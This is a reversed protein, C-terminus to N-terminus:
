EKGYSKILIKLIKQATKGDWLKPIKGKKEKGSLIEKVEKLIKEKNRKCLINTGKEITIPRETNERLTLCPVKLFTTEEQLGGSDTMLFKSESVLKIMDMYGIPSTIIFNKMEKLHTKFGFKEIQKKARPHIPYIIKIKKQIENFASILNSLIKKDDVNAPRHLTLVAYNKRELHLKELIKSKQIKVKSKILADIMIDGVLYIKGKDIGENLLNKVGAPETVFLFDSIHDTLHRNIEEPMSMDFSRLGAEIHAILPLHTMQNNPLKTMPHNPSQSCRLKAAVLAGALTSNVDGVVVVLDPKEKLIVPELKEMMKATQWAHSGSGVGLNYDPKPIKLDQFFIQSM